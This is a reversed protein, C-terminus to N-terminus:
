DLQLKQLTMSQLRQGNSLVVRSGPTKIVERGGFM